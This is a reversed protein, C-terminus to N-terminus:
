VADRGRLYRLLRRFYNAHGGRIFLTSLGEAARNSEVIHIHGATGYRCGDFLMQLGEQMAIADPREKSKVVEDM